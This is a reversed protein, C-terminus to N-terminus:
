ALPPRAASPAHLADTTTSCTPGRLAGALSMNAVPSTAQQPRHRDAYRQGLRHRLHDAVLHREWRLRPGQRRADPNRACRGRRRGRRRRASTGAVHPRTTTTRPPRPRRSATRATCPRASTRTRSISATDLV